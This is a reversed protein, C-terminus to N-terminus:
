ALSAVSEISDVKKDKILWRTQEGNCSWAIDDIGDNNFDAIESFSCCSDISGIEECSVITGNNLTAIAAAGDNFMALETLGDGDFDGSGLIEWAALNDNANSKYLM